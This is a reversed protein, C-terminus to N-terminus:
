WGPGVQQYAIVFAVTGWFLLTPYFRWNSYFYTCSHFAAM